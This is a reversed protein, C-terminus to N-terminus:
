PQLRDIEAAILAGAIALRELYPKSLMHECIAPDWGDPYSVSDIGEEHETALLMEAGHALQGNENEINDREITRGHKEIQERREEAILEIGTKPDKGKKDIFRQILDEDSMNYLGTGSGSGSPPWVTCKDAPKLKDYWEKFSLLNQKETKM